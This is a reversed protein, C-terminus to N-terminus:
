FIQNKVEESPKNAERLSSPGDSINSVSEAYVFESLPKGDKGVDGLAISVVGQPPTFPKEKVGKLARQM